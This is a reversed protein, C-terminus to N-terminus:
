RGPRERLGDRLIKIQWPAEIVIIAKGQRAPGASVFVDPLIEQRVSSTVRFERDMASEEVTVTFDGNAMLRSVRVRTEGVRFASGEAVGISLAM